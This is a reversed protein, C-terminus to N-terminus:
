DLSKEYIKKKIIKKVLRTKTNKSMSREIACRPQAQINKYPDFEPKRTMM